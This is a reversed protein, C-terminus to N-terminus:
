RFLLLKLICKLRRLAAQLKVAHTDSEHDELSRKFLRILVLVVPATKGNERWILTEIRQQIDARSWM